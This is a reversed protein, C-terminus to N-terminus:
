FTGDHVVTSSLLSSPNSVGDKPDLMALKNITQGRAGAAVKQNDQKFVDDFEHPSKKKVVKQM